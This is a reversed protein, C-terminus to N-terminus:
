DIMGTFLLMKGTIPHLPAEFSAESHSARKKRLIGIIEDGFM